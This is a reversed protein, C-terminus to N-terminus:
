HIRMRRLNRDIKRANAFKSLRHIPFFAKEGLGDVCVCEPFGSRDETYVINGSHLDGIVVHCEKCTRAFADLAQAHRESFSGERCIEKITSALRGSPDCIKEEVLGLGEDTEVIEYIKAVPIKLDPRCSKLKNLRIYEGIERVFVHYGGYGRINKIKGSGIINGNEDLLKRRITKLVVRSDGPLAYINRMKGQKLLELNGTRIGAQPMAGFPGSMM